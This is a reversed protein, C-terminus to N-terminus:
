CMQVCAHLVQVDCTCATVRAQSQFVWCLPLQPIWDHLLSFSRCLGEPQTCSGRTPWVSSPTSLWHWVSLASVTRDMQVAPLYKGLLSSLARGQPCFVASARQGMCQLIDRCTNMAAPIHVFGPGGAAQPMAMQGDMPTSILQIFLTIVNGSLRHSDMHLLDSSDWYTTYRLMDSLTSLGPFLFHMCHHEFLLHSCSRLPNAHM